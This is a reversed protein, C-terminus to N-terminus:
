NTLTYFYEDSLTLETYIKSLIKANLKNYDQERATIILGGMEVSAPSVILQKQGTAHYCDPRDKQRPFIILYYHQGRYWSLLNIMPEPGANPLAYWRDIYIDFADAILLPDQSVLIIQKAPWAPLTYVAVQRTVSRLKEARTELFTPLRDQIPLVGANGAQFHFHEPISAGCRPANYFLVYGKMAVALELMDDIRGEIQQPTHRADVLTFHRPFIPYPNCQILYENHRCTTFSIAQQQTFCNKRCLKCVQNEETHPEATCSELRQANCQVLIRYGNVYLSRQSVKKLADYNQRAMPWSELQQKLFSRLPLSM